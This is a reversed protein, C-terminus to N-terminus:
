VSMGCVYHGVKNHWGFDERRVEAEVASTARIAYVDVISAGNRSFEEEAFKEIDRIRRFAITKDSTIEHAVLYTQIEM